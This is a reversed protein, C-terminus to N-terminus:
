YEYILKGLINVFYNLFYYKIVKYKKDEGKDDDIQQLAATISKSNICIDYVDAEKMRKNIKKGMSEM